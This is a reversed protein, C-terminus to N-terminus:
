TPDIDIIGKRFDYLIRWRHLIIRGLISPDKLSMTSKDAITLNVDYPYTRADDSFIIKAKVSAGKGHGGAGSVPVIYSLNGYQIGLRNGDIPMLMVGSAGTDIMFSMPAVINFTPIQLEGDIM